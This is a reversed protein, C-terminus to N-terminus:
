LYFPGQKDPTLREMVSNPVFFGLRMEGGVPAPGMTDFPSRNGGIQPRFNARVLDKVGELINNKIVPRGAVYTVTVNNAGVAWGAGVRTIIGTKNAASYAGATLTAGDEVISTVSVVPALGLYIRAGGRGSVTEAVTRTACAGVIGEAVASAGKITRRLEEDHTTDTLAINLHEKTEVLGVMEIDALPWVNFVDNYSTAPTTSTWRIRHLGAQTTVYDYPFVGTSVPPNTIAPTLVTLDPLTISLVITGPNAPAGAADRITVTAPYTDGLDYM